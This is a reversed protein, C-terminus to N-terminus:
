GTKLRRVQERLAHQYILYDLRNLRALHRADAISLRVRNGASRNEDPMEASSLEPMAIRLLAASASPMEAVYFWPMSTIRRKVRIVDLFGTRPASWPSALLQRFHFNSIYLRLDPDPCRIFESFGLRHSLLVLAADKPHASALDTASVNNRWYRYLSLVREIPDRFNTVLSHDSNLCTFVEYGYHGAYFAYGAHGSVYAENSRHDNPANSFVPAVQDDTFLSGLFSRLATGGAKPNHLFFLRRTQLGGQWDTNLRTECSSAVNM